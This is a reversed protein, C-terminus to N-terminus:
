GPKIGSLDSSLSSAGVVVVVAEVVVVVEVRVGEMAVGHMGKSHYLVHEKELPTGGRRQVDPATTDTPSPHRLDCCSM